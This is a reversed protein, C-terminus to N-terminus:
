GSANAGTIRAGHVPDTYFAESYHLVYRLAYNGVFWLAVGLLAVFGLIKLAFFSSAKSERSVATVSGPTVSM